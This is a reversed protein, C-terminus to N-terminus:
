LQFPEASDPTKHAVDHGLSLRTGLFITFENSITLQVSPGIATSSQTFPHGKMTDQEALYIESYNLVLQPAEASFLLEQDSTSNMKPFITPTEYLFPSIPSLLRIDYVDFVTAGKVQRLPLYLLISRSEPTRSTYRSRLSGRQCVQGIVSASGRANM